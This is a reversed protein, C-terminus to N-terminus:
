RYGGPGFSLGAALRVSFGTGPGVLMHAALSGSVHRGLAEERAIGAAVNNPPTARFRRYGPHVLISGDPRPKRVEGYQRYSAVGLAGLTLSLTGGGRTTMFPFKVQALYLGTRQSNLKPGIVDTLVELAVRRTMNVTLRPGVGLLMFPGEDEFFATLVGSLNGGIELRPVRADQASAPLAVLITALALIVTSRLRGM